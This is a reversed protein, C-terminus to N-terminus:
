NKKDNSKKHRREGKRISKVMRAHDIGIHVRVVQAYGQNKKRTEHNGNM